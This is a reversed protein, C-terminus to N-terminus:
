AKKQKSRKDKPEAKPMLSKVIDVVLSSFCAKLWAPSVM